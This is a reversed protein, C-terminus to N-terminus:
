KGAAIEERYKPEIKIVSGDANTEINVTGTVNTPLNYAALSNTLRRKSLAECEKQADDIMMQTPPTKQTAASPGRLSGVLGMERAVQLYRIADIVV